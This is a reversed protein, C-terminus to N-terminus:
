PKKLKELVSRASNIAWGACEYPDDSDAIRKLAELMEPLKEILLADDESVHWAVTGTPSEISCGGDSESAHSVTWPGAHASM